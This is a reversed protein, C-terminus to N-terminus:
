KKKGSTNKNASTPTKVASTPAFQGNRDERGGTVAARAARKLAETVKEVDLTRQKAM